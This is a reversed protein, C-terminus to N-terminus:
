ERSPKITARPDRPNNVGVHPVVYYTGTCPGGMLRYFLYCILFFTKFVALLQPKWLIDTRLERAGRTERRGLPMTTTRDQIYLPAMQPPDLFQRSILPPVPILNARLLRLIYVPKSETSDKPSYTFINSSWNKNYYFTNRGRTNVGEELEETNHSDTITPRVGVWGLGTPLRKNSHDRTLRTMEQWLAYTIVPVLQAYQVENEQLEAFSMGNSTEVDHLNSRVLLCM